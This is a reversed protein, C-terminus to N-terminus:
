MCFVLSSVLMFFLLPAMINNKTNIDNKKDEIKIQRTLFILQNSSNNNNNEKKNNKNDKLQINEDISIFVNNHKNINDKPYLFERELDDFKCTDCVLGM